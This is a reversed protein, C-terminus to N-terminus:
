LIILPNNGSHTGPKQHWSFFLKCNKKKGMEIGLIIKTGEAFANMDITYYGASRASFSTFIIYSIRQHLPISKNYLLTGSTLEVATIAVIAILALFHGLQM